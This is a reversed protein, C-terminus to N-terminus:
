TRAKRSAKRKTSEKALRVIGPEGDQVQWGPIRFEASDEVSDSLWWTAGVKMCQSPPPLPPNEVVWVKHMRFDRRAFGPEALYAQYPALEALRFDAIDLLGQRL